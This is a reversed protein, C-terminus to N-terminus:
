LHISVAIELRGRLGRVGVDAPGGPGPRQDGVQVPTKEKQQKKRVDRRVGDELAHRAPGNSIQQTDGQTPARHAASSSKDEMEFKSIFPERPTKTIERWVAPGGM